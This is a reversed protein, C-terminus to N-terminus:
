TGSNNEKGDTFFVIGPSVASNKKKKFFRQFLRAFSRKGGSRSRYVCSLFSKLDFKSFSDGPSFSFRM